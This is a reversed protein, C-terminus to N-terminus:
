CYLMVGDPLSLSGVGYKKCAAIFKDQEEENGIRALDSSYLMFGFIGVNNESLFDKFEFAKIDFAADIFPKEDEGVEPAWGIFKSVDEDKDYDEVLHWFLSYTYVDETRVGQFKCDAKFKRESTWYEAKMVDPSFNVIVRNAAYKKLFEDREM